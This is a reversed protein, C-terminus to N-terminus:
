KRECSAQQGNKYDTNYKLFRRTAWMKYTELKNM